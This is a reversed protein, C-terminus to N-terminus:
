NRRNTQLTCRLSLSNKFNHTVVIKALLTLDDIM